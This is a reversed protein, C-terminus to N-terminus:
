RRELLRNLKDELRDLRSVVKDEVRVATASADNGIKTAYGYAGVVLSFIVGLLWLTVTEKM